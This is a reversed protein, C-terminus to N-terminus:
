QKTSQQLFVVLARAQAQQKLEPIAELGSILRHCIHQVRKHAPHDASLMPGKQGKKLQLAAEESMQDLMESRILNFRKRGTVPVEELHTYYITACTVSASSLVFISTKSLLAAALLRFPNNKKLNKIRDSLSM